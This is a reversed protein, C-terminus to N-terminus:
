GIAELPLAKLVVTGHEAGDAALRRAEDITSTTEELRVVSQGIYTM